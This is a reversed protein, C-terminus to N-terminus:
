GFLAPTGGFVIADLLHEDAVLALHPHDRPIAVTGGADPFGCAFAGELSAAHWLEEAPTRTEDEPTFTIRRQEKLRALTELARLDALPDTLVHSDIGTCFRVGSERLARLDPIGDGLDAETTACICAVSRAEGLMMAEHPLMHTAHVAVFNPRLVDINGLFDFPRRGTEAMCEEIERPQEAVHM